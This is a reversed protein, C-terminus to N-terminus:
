SAKGDHVVEGTSRRVLLGGRLTLGDAAGSAPAIAGVPELVIGERVRVLEWTTAKERELTITAELEVLEPSALPGLSQAAKWLGRKSRLSDRARARAQAAGGPFYGATQSTRHGTWGIPPAQERKLGHALMKALYRSLGGYDHVPGFWQASPRADVRSCWLPVLVDALASVDEPALGKVVLNLHLAGRRQFEVQVHHQYSPFRIRAARVLKRLHDRCDARTLHERATLVGYVAPAAGELADVQLMEATEIVGLARCYECLNTARCRGKVFSGASSRLRM